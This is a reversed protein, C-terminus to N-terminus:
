GFSRVQDSMKRKLNCALKTAKSTLNLASFSRQPQGPNSAPDAAEDDLGEGSEEEEDGGDDDSARSRSELEAEDDPPNQQSILYCSIPLPLFLGFPGM